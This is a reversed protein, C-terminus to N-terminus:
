APSSTTRNGGARKSEYMAQDARALAAELPEGPGVLAVGLSVTPHIAAPGATLPTAAAARLGEAVRVAGALDTVGLLVVLLEDGGIRAVLDDHRVVARFRAAIARLVEDGAAHGYRDNIAKFRDIDGYVLAIEVGRRPPRQAVAHLRELASARNLLGTLDDYTARRSLEQEASVQEDIVRWTGVYGSDRDHEDLAHRGHAEVWHWAGDRALVRLRVRTAPPVSAGAHVAEAAQHDGPHIV